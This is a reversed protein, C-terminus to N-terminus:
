PRSPADSAAWPNIISLSTQAFDAVNRTVITLDHVLAPAAIWSDREGRLDPVHVQACRTAVEASMPLIRGEFAPVVTEILWGRLMKGQVPDRREMLLTGFDLEFLTIACVYTSAPDAASMWAVVQPDARGTGLKRRESVDNTDLLYM